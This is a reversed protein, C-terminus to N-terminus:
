YVKKSIVMIGKKPYVLYLYDGVILLNQDAVTDIAKEFEELSFVFYFICDYQTKQVEYDGSITQLETVTDPVNLFLRSKYTEIKLKELVTKTQAMLIAENATLFINKLLFLLM